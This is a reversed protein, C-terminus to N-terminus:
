LLPFEDLLEEVVDVWFAETPSCGLVFQTASSVAAWLATLQGAMETHHTTPFQMGESLHSWVTPPGVISLCL